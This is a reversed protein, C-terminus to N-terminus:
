QIWRELLIISMQILSGPCNLVYEIFGDQHFFLIMRRLIKDEYNVIGNIEDMEYGHSFM